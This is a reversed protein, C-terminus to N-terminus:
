IDVPKIIFLVPQYDKSGRLAFVAELIPVPFSHLTIIGVANNARRNGSKVNNNYFDLNGTNEAISLLLKNYPVTVKNVNQKEIFLLNHDLSIHDKAIYYDYTPQEIIEHYKKGTLNDKYLLCLYDQSYKGDDQRRPYRYFTDLLTVDSGDPVGKLISYNSM